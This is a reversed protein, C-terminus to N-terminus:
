PKWRIGTEDAMRRWAAEAVVRGGPPWYRSRPWRSPHWLYAINFRGVQTISGRVRNLRARECVSIDLLECVVEFAHEGLCCITRPTSRGDENLVWRLVNLCYTRIHPCNLLKGVSGSYDTGPKLVGAFVSGALKRCELHGALEHLNRNTQAGGARPEEIFNRASFPDPHKGIRAAIPDHPAADQMLLLADWDWDGLQWTPFERGLHDVMRESGYLKSEATLGGLEYVNRSALCWPHKFPCNQPSFGRFRDINPTRRM